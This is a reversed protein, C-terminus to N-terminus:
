VAVASGFMSSNMFVTILPQNEVNLIAQSTVLNNINCFTDICTEHGNNIINM